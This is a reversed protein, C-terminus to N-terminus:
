YNAHLEYVLGRVVKEGEEVRQETNLHLLGIRGENKLTNIQQYLFQHIKQKQNKTFKVEQSKGM